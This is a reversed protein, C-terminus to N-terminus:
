VYGRTVTQIELKRTVESTRLKAIKVRSPSETSKTSSEYKVIIYFFFFFVISGIYNIDDANNVLKECFRPFYNAVRSFLYTRYFFLCLLFHYFFM